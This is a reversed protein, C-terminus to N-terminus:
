LATNKQGTLCQLHLMLSKLEDIKANVNALKSELEELSKEEIGSFEEKIEKSVVKSIGKSEKSASISPSKHLSVKSVFRGRADRPQTSSTVKFLNSHGWIVAMMENYEKTSAHDAM